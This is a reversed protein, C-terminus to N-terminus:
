RGPVEGSRDRRDHWAHSCYDTCAYQALEQVVTIGAGDIRDRASKSIACFTPRASKFTRRYHRSSQRGPIDAVRARSRWWPSARSVSSAASTSVGRVNLRCPAIPTRCTSFHRSAVVMSPCNVLRSIRLWPMRPTNEDEGV